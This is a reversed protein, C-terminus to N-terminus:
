AYRLHIKIDFCFKITDMACVYSPNEFFEYVSTIFDISILSHKCIKYPNYFMLNKILQSFNLWVRQYNIIKDDFVFQMSHDSCDFNLETINWLTM